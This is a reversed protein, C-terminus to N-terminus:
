EHNKYQILKKILYNFGKLLYEAGMGFGYVIVLLLKFLWWLLKAIITMIESFLDSNNQAM